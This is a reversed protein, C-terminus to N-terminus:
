IWNPTVPRLNSSVEKLQYRQGVNLCGHLLQNVPISRDLVTLLSDIFSLAPARGGATYEMVADHVLTVNWSDHKLHDLSLCHLVLRGSSVFIGRAVFSTGLIVKTSSLMSPTTATPSTVSRGSFSSSNSVSESLSASLSVSMVNLLNPRVM